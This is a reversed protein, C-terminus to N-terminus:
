KHELCVLILLPLPARNYGPEAGSQERQGATNGFEAGATADLPLGNMAAGLGNKAPAFVPFPWPSTPFGVINPGGASAPVGSAVLALLGDDGYIDGM